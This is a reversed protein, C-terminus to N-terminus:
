EDSAALERADRILAEFEDDLDEPAALVFDHLLKMTSMPVRKRLTRHEHEGILLLSVKLAKKQPTLYAMIAPVSLVITTKLAKVQVPGLSRVLDVVRKYMVRVHADRGALHSALSFRECTHEVPRQAFQRGCRPCVYATSAMRAWHIM